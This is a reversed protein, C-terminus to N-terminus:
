AQPNLAYGIGRVTQIQDAHPGLKERLRKIHTDLTRTLTSDKYGWVDRLLTDRTHVQNPKQLFLLMLKFETATLDVRQGDMILRLTERELRFPGSEITPEALANRRLLARLRLLLEKASFPKSLYDDAGCELGQIRDEVAGRATLMLVPVRNLESRSRLVRLFQLGDMHPMMMDLVIADPCQSEVAKLGHLGNAATRVEYGDKALNYSLLDLLDKEDDILLISAM